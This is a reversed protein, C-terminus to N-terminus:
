FGERKKLNEIKIDCSNEWSGTVHKSRAIAAAPSSVVGGGLRAPCCWALEAKEGRSTESFTSTFWVSSGASPRISATHSLM